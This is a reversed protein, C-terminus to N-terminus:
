MQECGLIPTALDLYFQGFWVQEVDLGSTRNEQRWKAAM